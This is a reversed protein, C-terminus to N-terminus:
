KSCSWAPLYIAGSEVWVWLIKTPHISSCLAPQNELFLSHYYAGKRRQHTLVTYISNDNFAQSSTVWEFICRCSRKPLNKPSISVFPVNRNPWTPWWWICSRPFREQEGRKPPRLHHRQCSNLLLLPENRNWTILKVVRVLIVCYMMASFPVM